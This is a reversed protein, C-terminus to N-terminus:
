AGGTDGKFTWKLASCATHQYAELHQAEHPFVSEGTEECVLRDGTRRERKLDNQYFRTVVEGVTSSPAASVEFETLADEDYITVHLNHGHDAEAHTSPVTTM